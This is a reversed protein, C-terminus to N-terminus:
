AVAIMKNDNFEKLRAMAVGRKKENIKDRIEDLDMNLENPDEESGTDFTIPISPNIVEPIKKTMYKELEWTTRKAQDPYKGKVVPKRSRRTVDYSSRPSLYSNGSLKINEVRNTPYESLISQKKDPSM